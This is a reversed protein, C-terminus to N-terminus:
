LPKRPFNIGKYDCVTIALSAGAGDERAGTSFAGEGSLYLYVDWTTSSSHIGHQAVLQNDGFASNYTKFFIPTLVLRAISEGVPLIMGSYPNAAASSYASDKTFALCDPKTIVTYEGQVKDIGVIQIPSSTDDLYRALDYTVLESLAKEDDTDIGNVADFLENKFSSFSSHFKTGNESVVGGPAKLQIQEEADTMTIGINGEDSLIEFDLGTAQISFTSTGDDRRLQLGTGVTSVDGFEFTSGDNLSVIGGGDVLINNDIVVDNSFYGDGGVALDGVMATNGTNDISFAVNTHTSDYVVMVTAGSTTSYLSTESAYIKDSVVSEAYARGIQANDAAMQIIGGDQTFGCPTVDDPASSQVLNTLDNTEDAMEFVRCLHTLDASDTITINEAHANKVVLTVESNDAGGEIGCDTLESTWLGTGDESWKLCQQRGAAISEGFSLTALMYNEGSTRLDRANTSGAFDLYVIIDCKGGAILEDECETATYRVDDELDDLDAGSTGFSVDRVGNLKDEFRSDLSKFLKMYNLINNGEINRDRFNSADMDLYLGFKNVAGTIDGDIAASLKIRFPLQGSFLSCPILAVKEMKTVDGGDLTGDTNVPNWGTGAIGCGPHEHAILYESTLDSFETNDWSKFLDTSAASGGNEDWWNYMFGDHANRRQVANIVNNFQTAARNVETNFRYDSLFSLFVSMLIASIIIGIVLEIMTFGNQKRGAFKNKM